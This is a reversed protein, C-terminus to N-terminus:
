LWTISMIQSEYLSAPATTSVLFSGVVLWYTSGSPPIADLSTFAQKSVMRHIGNIRHAANESAVGAFRPLFRPRIQKLRILCIGAVGFGRVLQPRFPAPLQAALVDSAIRFNVLIRRDIVGQIVPLRM